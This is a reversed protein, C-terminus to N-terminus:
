ALQPVVRLLDEAVLDNLFTMTDADIQAPEGRYQLALGDCLQRATRPAALMEWVHRGIDDLGVYNDKSPNLVVLDFDLATSMLENNRILISDPTVPM